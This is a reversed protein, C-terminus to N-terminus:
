VAQKNFQEASIAPFGDLSCKAPEAPAGHEHQSAMGPDICAKIAVHKNLL